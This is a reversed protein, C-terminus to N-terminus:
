RYVTNNWQNWGADSQYYGPEQAWQRSPSLPPPQIGPRPPWAYTTPNVQSSANPDPSPANYEASPVPPQYIPSRLPNESGPLSREGGPVVPMTGVAFIANGAQQTNIIPNFQGNPPPENTRQRAFFHDRLSPVSTRAGSEPPIEVPTQNPPAVEFSPPWAGERSPNLPESGKPLTDIGDADPYIVTEAGDDQSGDTVDYLGTDGFMETVDALCWHIRSSELHKMREMQERSTIVHPTLIILLETRKCIELDYRFLNGLVPIDSLGPVRRRITVQNKSILGGLVVTQGDQASVTTQARTVTFSPSRIVQDGSVTVPIGEQEAGIESKEADIEMVVTGDPSIRPTVGLILGINELEIDNQSIGRDFRSATIRPVRKGVQIYASQNDLTMIQPRSLIELRRSEQLARILISVAESSASLVLGGFGLENNMRGVAFNSLGQSGVTNAGALANVSGANPLPGSNNFLFGPTNTASIIQEVTVQPQGPDSVITSITELDSLISRDFLVSDQLGLEVGFEDTDNLGIEAILVQIMVQDPAEDLKEVLEMIEDFFRPTASIILSNSVFEPVVIVESEIQEFPSTTGPAAQSVMRESRLFENISQAVDMAPSNKLRYVENQRREIGEQDLRLILAWIINLDGESGTVIISNTRTDVSFRVPVLSGEDESAPLQPGVTMSTSSPMLTRLMMALSTADANEIPYVKIQAVASRIDLRAILAEVFEMSEPPGSIMLSNTRLDPMAEVDSLLGSKALLSGDVGLLELASSAQGITGGRATQILMRLTQSMDAALSNKLRIIKAQKTKTGDDTDLESILAAVEAMDRDSARVILSNTRVDPIVEVSPALGGRNALAQIVTTSVTYVPAHLLHFVKFQTDPPVPKDLKKILEKVAVVAEGWGILLLSDPKILPTISVRGQRGGILDQQVQIIIRHISEGRIHKLPYVEIVPETEESLRELEEILAAIDEVDQERGKVIIVDLDPLTEIQVDAGLRELGRGMADRQAPAVPIEDPQETAGEQFLYSVLEVGANHFRDSRSGEEPRPLRRGLRGAGRAGSRYAELTRRVKAPDTRQVRLVRVRTEATQRPNDLIEILRVLQGRLAEPGFVKIGNRKEDITLEARGGRTDVFVYDAQGIGANNRPELRGQLYKRLQMEVVDARTNVLPVFEDKPKAPTVGAASVGIGSARKRKDGVASAVPRRALQKSILLHIEPPAFVLLQQTRLDVAVQVGSGAGYTERLRRATEELRAPQCAYSEFVAKGIPAKAPPRDVTKILSKAIEQAQASGRVLIQGAQSDVVVHATVGNGRFMDNLLEEVEAPNRHKLQYAQYNGSSAVQADVTQCLVIVTFTCLIMRWCLAPLARVTL